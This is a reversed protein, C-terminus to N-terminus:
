AMNVPPEQDSPVPTRSRKQIFEVKIAKGIPFLLLFWYPRISSFFSEDDMSSAIIGCVLLTLLPWYKMPSLRRLSKILLGIYLLLAVIGGYYATGLFFNHSDNVYSNSFPVLSQHTFGHGFFPKEMWQLFRTKWIRTRGNFTLDIQLARPPTFTNLRQRPENRNQTYIKVSAWPTITKKDLTINLNYSNSEKATFLFVKPNSEQQLTERLGHKKKITPLNPAKRPESFKILLAEGQHLDIQYDVNHSFTTIWQNNYIVIISLSAIFIFATFIKLYHTRSTNQLFFVLILIPLCAVASRSGTMYCAWLSLLFGICRVFKSVMPQTHFDKYNLFIWTFFLYFHGAYLPHKMPGAGVLRPNSFGDGLFLQIGIAPLILYGWNKLAKTEDILSIGTIFIIVYCIAKLDKYEPSQAWTSSLAMWTALALLWLYIPCRILTSFNERLMLLTLPLFTIYFINNLAKFSPSVLIGLLILLFCYSLLNIVPQNINKM